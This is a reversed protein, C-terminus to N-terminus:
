SWFTGNADEDLLAILRELERQPKPSYPRWAFQGTFSPADLMWSGSGKNYRFRAIDLHAWDGTQRPSPRSEVLVVADDEFRLELRLEAQREPPVRRECYAGLRNRALHQILIPLPM